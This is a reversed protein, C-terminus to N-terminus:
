TLRNGEQGWGDPRPLPADTDEAGGERDQEGAWAAQTQYCAKADGQM